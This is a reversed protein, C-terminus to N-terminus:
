WNRASRRWPPCPALPPTSKPLSRRPALSSPPAQTLSSPAGGPACTQGARWRCPTWRLSGTRRVPSPSGPTSGWLTRQTRGGLVLEGGGETKDDEKRNLWFSFVSDVRGQRVMANFPPLLGDVSIRPFGMGLIGDFKAAIFTIGPQHVAEAFQQDVVPIGGWTLTDNSVYGTLSGTGYQIEFATGNAKYTTSKKGNYKRHLRCAIDFLSCHVSPVWLNASGTDFIVSFVQTPTGLGIEGYYQADMFNLIPVDATDGFM